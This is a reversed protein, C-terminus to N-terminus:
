STAGAGWSTAGAAWSDSSVIERSVTIGAVLRLSEM